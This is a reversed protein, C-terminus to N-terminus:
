ECQLSSLESRPRGPIFIRKHLVLQSVGTYCYEHGVPVQSLLQPYKDSPTNNSARALADRSDRTVIQVAEPQLVGPHPTNPVVGHPPCM